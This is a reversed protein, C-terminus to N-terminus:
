GIIRKVSDFVGLKVLLKKLKYKPPYYKEVNEWIEDNLDELFKDRKPSKIVSKEILGNHELIEEYNFCRVGELYQNITKKGQETFAIICSTGLKGEGKCEAYWDGIILDVASTIGKCDCHNCSNRLALNYVITAEMYTSSPLYTPLYVISGSEYEYRCYSKKYGEKSKDRFNVDILRSGEKQSMWRKCSEWAEPASVGHCLVGVTTLQERLQGKKDHLVMNSAASVQCPTGSFLVRKGAKLANMMEVYCMKTDSQVYKSGQMRVIGELSDTIMHEAELSDNWVCGIVGGGEEITKKALEYFAAGSASRKKAKDDKSAYLWVDPSHGMRDHHSNLHPCVSDCMGCHNCKSQIVEPFLFGNKDANMKIAGLPCINHCAGCGSCYEYFDFQIM